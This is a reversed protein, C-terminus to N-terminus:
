LAPTHVVFGNALWSISANISIPTTSKSFGTKTPQRRSYLFELPVAYTEFRSQAVGVRVRLPSSVPCTVHVSEPVRVM